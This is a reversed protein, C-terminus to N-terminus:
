WWPRSDESERVVLAPFGSCTCSFSSRVVCLAEEVRRRFSWRSTATGPLGLQLDDSRPDWSTLRSRVAGPQRQLEKSIQKVALGQDRLHRLREEEAQDWREYARSYRARVLKVRDWYRRKTGTESPEPVRAPGGGRRRSARAPQPRTHRYTFHPEWSRCNSQAGAPAPREPRACRPVRAPARVDSGRPRRGRRGTWRRPHACLGRGHTAARAGSWASWAGLGRAVGALEPAQRTRRRHARPRWAGGGGRGNVSQAQTRRGGFVGALGVARRGRVPVLEVGHTASAGDAGSAPQGRTDARSSLRQLTDGCSSWHPRTAAGGRTIFAGEQTSVLASPCRKVRM